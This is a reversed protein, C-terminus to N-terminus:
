RRGRVPRSELIGYLLSAIAHLTALATAHRRTELGGTLSSVMGGHRRTGPIAMSLEADGLGRVLRDPLQLAGSSGWTEGGLGLLVTWSRVFHRSQGAADIRQLGAETGVYFGYTDGHQAQLALARSRALSLIGDETLPLEDADDAPPQPVVAVPVPRELGDHFYRLFGDRVGLLKDPVGSAVAVEVGSQFRRWFDTLSESM